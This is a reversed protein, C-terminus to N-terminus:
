DNTNEIEKFKQWILRFASTLEQPNTEIWRDLDAPRFWRGEVAEHVDIEFPGNHVLRYIWCFEYDTIASAQLKFLRDPVSELIVGIEEEIERVMAEDYSEGTQLHGAVSSDWLDPNNDRHPARHQLFIEGKDNFVIAHVSRHLLNNRHVEARTKCDIVQDKSNVVDFLEFPEFPENM